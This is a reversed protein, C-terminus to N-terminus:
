CLSLPNTESRKLAAPFAGSSSRSRSLSFRVSFFHSRVQTLNSASHICDTHPEKNLVLRARDSRCVSQRSCVCVGVRSVSPVSIPSQIAASTPPTREGPWVVKVITLHM